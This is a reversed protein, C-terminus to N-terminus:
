RLVSTKQLISNLDASIEEHSAELFSDRPHVVIWFGPLMRSYEKRLIDRYIRKIRSRKVASSAFRNTVVIGTRTPLSPDKLQLSFVRSYEGSHSVGLRRTKNFEYTSTLRAEKKLM